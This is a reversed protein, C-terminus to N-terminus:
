IVKFKHSFNISPQRTWSVYLYCKDGRVCQGTGVPGVAVPYHALLHGQSSVTAQMVDGPASGETTTCSLAPDCEQINVEAGDPFLATLKVIQGNRRVSDPTIKARYLSASVSGAMLCGFITVAAILSAAYKLKRVM